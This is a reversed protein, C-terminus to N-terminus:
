HAHDIVLRAVDGSLRARVRALQLVAAVALGVTLGWWLGAAGLHFYFALLAGFPIGFAWFSLTHLIAPVRTDGTGRLISAAVVQTGDFVQFVAAIPILMAALTFTAADQTYFGALTGPIAAFLMACLAMFGVGVVLAAVADRRSAAMDGRGVARGVMVAAAAAVGMPVMFTMSALSLAIEHGALTTTDIWGTMVTVIGFAGVEALFQLGIPLGLLLMRGLPALTLSEAHWHLLYPRLQKWGLALLTAAMVWRSLVTAQSSGVVGGAAFGLNGFILVWNFFVNVANGVVVAIVVPKLLHFAQMTQRLMNFAFFPLLGPVSWRVYAAALPVVDEPQRLVTLLPRAPLFTASVLLAVITTMVIGRQISRAIAVEDQAGIAQSIVPDLALLMGIGIIATAFFYFNGLGVAALATPSVRGLMIADVLGMGQMGVNVVVIPAAIRAMERLEDATPRLASLSM